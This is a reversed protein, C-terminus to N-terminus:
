TNNDPEYGFIVFNFDIAAGSNNTVGIAYNTGAKLIWEGGGLIADGGVSFAANTAANPIFSAGLASGTTTIVPSTSITTFPTRSSARNNNAFLQAAGSSSVVTGEYYDITAPTGAVIVEFFDLHLDSSGVQVLHFLTAGNALGTHKRAHTFGKGDHVMRHKLSLQSAANQSGQLNESTGKLTNWIKLVDVAM